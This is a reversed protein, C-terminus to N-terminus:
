DSMVYNEPPPMLTEGEAVADAWLHWPEVMGENVGASHRTAGLTTFNNPQLMRESLVTPFASALAAIIQPGLRTDAVITPPSSLDYRPASIAQQLSMGYDALYILAQYVAPLIKRGGSGGIAVVDGAPGTMMMPSYNALAKRDPAIANVRGPRPDFWNIGNNLLIGTSPSMVGSGFLSLLTQTLSVCLGDRDTVSIHTTCSPLAREAGDGLCTFRHHWAAALAKAGALVEDPTPVPGRPRPSSALNRLALAITIGGNL